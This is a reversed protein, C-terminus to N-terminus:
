CSDGDDHGPIPRGCPSRDPAAADDARRSVPDQPRQTQVREIEDDDAAAHGAGRRGVLQRRTGADHQQLALALRAVVRGAPRRRQEGLGIPRRLHPRQRGAALREEQRGGVAEGRVVNQRRAAGHKEAPRVLFRLQFANERLRAPQDLRDPPDVRGLGPRQHRHQSRVIDAAAHQLRIGHIDVHVRQVLAIEPAKAGAAATDDRIGLDHRQRFGAGVPADLCPGACEGGGDDDVGGAGPGVRDAVHGAGPGDAQHGLPAGRDQEVRGVADVAIGPRQDDVDVLAEIELRVRALQQSRRGVFRRHRWTVHLGLVDIDGDGDVADLGRGVQGYRPDVMAPGPQAREHGVLCRNDAVIGLDGTEEPQGSLAAIANLGRRAQAPQRGREGGAPGRGGIEGIEAAVASDGARM